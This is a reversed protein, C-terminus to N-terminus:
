QPQRCQARRNLPGGGRRIGRRPRCTRQASPENGRHEDDHRDRHQREVEPLSVATRHVADLTGDGADEVRELDAGLADRPWEAVGVAPGRTQDVGARVVLLEALVELQQAELRDLVLRCRPLVDIQAL